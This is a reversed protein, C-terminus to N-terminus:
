QLIFPLAIMTISVAMAHVPPNHISFCANYYDDEQFLSDPQDEMDAVPMNESDDTVDNLKKRFKGKRHMGNSRRSPKPIEYLQITGDTDGLSNKAICKYSGYDGASVTKITLQMHIKYGNDKVTVEYKGSQPVIEGNDTTWYNISKPYAESHCDLTIQQGEYAGVMQNQIWIMPPFHVVLSIRKSVSPPVGNSAICLYPGMQQRTVRTINLIPGEVSVAEEGTILQVPEGGERKWTIAPEPSGKAVCRLAVNSSERVIMDTSTPYDLIDPPVVTDLYGVQSKMPDTNIQCMYWGKDSERVEKIHLYWTKHESHTVGIRHNKTIVHSHITLITQTDVRLWAVKYQGLDEVLCAMIAERGVAVTVNTIPESFKPNELFDAATTFLSLVTIIVVCVYRERNNAM